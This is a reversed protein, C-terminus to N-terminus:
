PRLILKQRKTLVFGYRKDTIRQVVVFAIKHSVALLKHPLRRRLLIHVSAGARM